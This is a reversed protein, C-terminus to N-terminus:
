QNVGTRVLPINLNETCSSYKVTLQLVFAHTGIETVTGTFTGSESWSGGVGSGTWTFTGSPSKTGKGSKVYLTYVSDLGANPGTELFRLYDTAASLGGFSMSGIFVDGSADLCGSGSTSNVYLEGQFTGAEPPSVTGDDALANGPPFLLALMVGATALPAYRYM